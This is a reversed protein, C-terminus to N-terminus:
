RVRIRIDTRCNCGCSEDPSLNDDGPWFAGNSFAEDIDAEEGNMLAHSERPNEGTVWIKKVEKSWNPQREAQHVAETVAWGAAATAMTQALMPAETNQRKDMVESPDEDLEIAEAIKEATKVNTAHARGEAMKRIYAKTLEVSYESELLEATEIGHTDAIEQMIEDLDDALEKDWREGDWWESGAGIKPLISNAQRKFFKKLVEAFKEKEENSASPAKTRIEEAKAKIKPVPATKQEEEVPLSMEDGTSLNLPVIMQDGGEIPPLNLEARVENRTMYPAGAAQYLIAAREEFSGKLKESLDFEVYTGKDAGVKPLLFENFRQQLMQIDSGLCEAYLARANDKASAYTQTETHWILSPNVRYAAAVAERSLKISEAWQQEKFSTQFPEIKMGDELLPISGAKSGGAGWAERFATVWKQRQEDTWPAVDKPRTIQANLRGSSRWLEKRFNGSSIQEELFQRLSSIPSLFGGPNGPSYTKFQIFEEKPIDVTGGQSTSIRIVDVAYVNGGETSQVWDSPVIYLEYGSETEASPILWVYVNGFVMYETVLGRIFEYSTQVKNPRYLLKAAKSDRDRERNGEADRRYVKVPLQAISAALFDVVARLNDQTQYLKKVSYNLVASPADPSFSIYFQPRAMQRFRGLIRPM